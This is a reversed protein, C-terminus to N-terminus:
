PSMTRKRSLPEWPYASSVAFQQDGGDVLPELLIESATLGSHDLV